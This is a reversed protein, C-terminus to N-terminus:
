QYRIKSVNIIYDYLINLSRSSNQKILLEVDNTKIVLEDIKESNWIKAQKKVIDKDKWFIPPRFESIVRDLNNTKDYQSIIIRLRKLKQLLTRIIQICDELSYFNENLIKITKSLNNSLCNDVLESVSYNESLNVLQYIEDISIKKDNDLYAKIKNLEKKLNNRDSSCKEVILNISERSISIKEEKFYNTAINSLKINDDPYVPICATQKNKEFFSRLKSKKDLSQSIVIIKVDKISKIIVEDIFAVLKDTSRYIVLTKKTEFFSKNLLSSFIEDKKELLDKEDYKDLTDDSNTIIASLIESKLGENDGYILFTNFLSQKIKNLEFSKIIM